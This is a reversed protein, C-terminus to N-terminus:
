QEIILNKSVKTPHLAMFRGAIVNKRYVKKTDSGFDATSLIRLVPKIQFIKHDDKNIKKM